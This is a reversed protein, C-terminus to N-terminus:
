WNWGTNSTRKTKNQGGFHTMEGLKKKKKKECRFIGAFIM